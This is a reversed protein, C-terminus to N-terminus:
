RMSLDRVREIYKLGPPPEEAGTAAYNSMLERREKGSGGNLDRM